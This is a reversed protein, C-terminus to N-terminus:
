MNSNSKKGNDNRDEDDEDKPLQKFDVLKNGDWIVQRMVYGKPDNYDVPPDLTQALASGGAMVLRASNAVTQQVLVLDEESLAYPGQKKYHNTNNTSNM